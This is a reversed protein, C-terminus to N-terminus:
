LDTWGYVFFNFTLFIGSRSVQDKVKFGKSVGHVVGTERQRGTFVPIVFYKSYSYLM